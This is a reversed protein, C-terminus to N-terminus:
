PTATTEPAADPTATPSEPAPGLRPTSPTVDGVPSAEAAPAPSPTDVWVPVEPGGPTEAVKPCRSLDFILNSAIEHFKGEWKSFVPTPATFVLVVGKRQDEAEPIVFYALVRLELDAMQHNYTVWLRGETEGEEVVKFSEVEAALAELKQNQFEQVTTEPPLPEIRVILNERFRDGAPSLFVVTSGEFRERVEWDEPAKLCFGEEENRYVGKPDLREFSVGAGGACATALILLFLLLFVPKGM